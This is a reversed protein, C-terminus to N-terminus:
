SNLIFIATVTIEKDITIIANPTKNYKPKASLNRGCVKKSKGIIIDRDIKGSIIKVKNILYKKLDVVFLVVLSKSVIGWISIILFKIIVMLSKFSM